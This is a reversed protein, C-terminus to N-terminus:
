FGTTGTGGTGGTGGNSGTQIPTPVSHVVGSGLLTFGFLREMPAFLRALFTDATVLANADVFVRDGPLIQYNTDTNGCRTIAKWDVKLVECCKSGAPSPRSIWINKLSAVAPLGGISSLADLVTESGTAPLRYVAEGLGGGSTVVYFVKSNYAYVDVSVEPKLLYLSLQAEIAAKAEDLTLGAVFVSGYVGLGVTGDPRVLHEGRIQQRARSQGLAVRAEAKKFGTDRFHKEIAKQAEQITLGDVHVTGYSAGFNITGDADVGVLGAIPEGPLVESIQVFLTDLPEIRYPPKPVVRIADILLIDPPELRYLPHAVKDLERPLPLPVKCGKGLGPKLMNFPSLSKCSEKGVNYPSSSIFSSVEQGTEAVMEAGAPQEGKPSGDETNTVVSASTSAPNGLEATQSETTTPQLQAGSQCGSELHITAWLLGIVWLVRIRRSNM